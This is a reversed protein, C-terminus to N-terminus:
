KHFNHAEKVHWRYANETLLISGFLVQLAFVPEGILRSKHSCSIVCLIEPHKSFVKNKYDDNLSDTLLVATSTVQYITKTCYSNMLLNEKRKTISINKRAHLRQLDCEVNWKNAIERHECVEHEMFIARDM